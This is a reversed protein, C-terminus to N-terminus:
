KWDTKEACDTGTFGDGRYRTPKNRTQNLGCRAFGQISVEARRETWGNM